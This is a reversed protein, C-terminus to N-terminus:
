VFVCLCNVCKKGDRRGHPEKRQLKNTNFKLNIRKASSLCMRPNGFLMLSGFLFAFYFACKFFVHKHGSVRQSVM